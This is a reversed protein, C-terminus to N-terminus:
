PLRMHTRVVNNAPSARIQVLDCLHNVLWLGRGGHQELPPPVRGALPDVIRGQDSVECLLEGGEQWIRLTGRGGGYQVSNTVLENIALVLDGNAEEGLRAERARRSVLSRVIGLGSATFRLEEVEATPAPLSGDFPGPARSPDLYSDSVEDAGDCALFPHSERAAQIVSDRLADLDYPCLLQWQPGDDFALNLLSEHRQCESLEARSRGAWVPEGIGRAGGGPARERLFEGWAPIVRAPNRGLEHMDVFRVRQADDGLAETLLSSRASSVAVLLPEEAALADRIFPLTGRLFGSEGAYFLAEHRFSCGARSSSAMRDGKAPQGPPRLGVTARQTSM